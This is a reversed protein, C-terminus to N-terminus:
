IDVKNKLWEIIKTNNNAAACISHVDIIFRKDYLWQMVHLHGNCAAGSYANINCSVDKSYLWELVDIHGGKAAAVYCLEMNTPLIRKARNNYLYNVISLDGFMCSNYLAMIRVREKDRLYKKIISIHGSKSANEIIIEYIQNDFQTDEELLSLIEERGNIAAAAAIAYPCWGVINYVSSLIYDYMECSMGTPELITYAIEYRDYPCNNKHLWEILNWRNESIDDVSLCKRANYVVGQVAATFTTADMICPEETNSIWELINIHGERAAENCTLTQWQCLISGAERTRVKKLLEINGRQSLMACIRYQMVLFSPYKNLIATIMRYDGRYAIHAAIQMITNGSIDDNDLISYTINPLLVQLDRCIGGKYECALVLIQEQLEDNLSLLTNREM